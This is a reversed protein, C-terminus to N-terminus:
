RLVQPLYLYRKPPEGSESVVVTATDSVNDYFHGDVAGRAEVQAQSSLIGTFAAAIQLRIDLRATDNAPVNDVNCTITAGNQACGGPLTAKGVAAASSLTGTVVVNVPASEFNTITWTFTISQGASIATSSAIQHIGVDALTCLDPDPMVQVSVQRSTQISPTVVLNASIQVQDLIRQCTPLNSGVLHVNAHRHLDDFTLMPGVEIETIAKGDTDSWHYEWGRQSQIAGLAVMRTVVDGHSVNFPLMAQGTTTTTYVTGGWYGFSVTVAGPLPAGGGGMVMITTPMPEGCTLDQNALIFDGGFARAMMQEGLNLDKGSCATIQVECRNCVDAGHFDLEYNLSGSISSFTVGEPPLKALWDYNVPTLAQWRRGPGAPSLSELKQAMGADPRLPISFYHGQTPPDDPLSYNVYVTPTMYYTGTIPVALSGPEQAGPAQPVLLGMGAQGGPTWSRLYDLDKTSVTTTVEEFDHWRSLVGTDAAYDRTTVSGGSYDSGSGCICAWGTLAAFATILLMFAVQVMPRVSQNSM